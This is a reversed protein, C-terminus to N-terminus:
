ATATAASNQVAPALLKSLAVYSAEVKTSDTPPDTNALSEVFEVVATVDEVTGLEAIDSEIVGKLGRAAQEEDALLPLWKTRDVSARTEPLHYAECLLRLAWLRETAAPRLLDWGPNGLLLGDIFAGVRPHCREGFHEIGWFCVHVRPNSSPAIAAGGPRSIL